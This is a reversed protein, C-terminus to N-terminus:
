RRFGIGVGVAVPPPPPEVVYVPEGVYYRRPYRYATAQMESIVQDTVGNQKLWNIDNATLHFITPSTRVQNIIIADNVHQQTMQVVDSLAMARAEAARKEAHDVSSGILGGSLAGVGAGVLAGVGAHGTASGILAGTGAGIAGGAVAGNETHNMTSCGCALAIPLVAATLLRKRNM